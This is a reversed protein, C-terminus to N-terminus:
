AARVLACEEIIADREGSASRAADREARAKALLGTMAAISQRDKLLAQLSVPGYFKADGWDPRYFSGQCALADQTYSEALPPHVRQRAMEVVCLEESDERIYNGPETVEDATLWRLPESEAVHSPTAAACGKSLLEWQFELFWSRAGCQACTTHLHPAEGHPHSEFKLAGGDPKWEHALRACLAIEGESMVSEPKRPDIRLEGRPAASPTSLAEILDAIERLSLSSPAYDRPMGSLRVGRRDDEIAEAAERLYAVAKRAADPTASLSPLEKSM